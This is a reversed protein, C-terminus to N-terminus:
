NVMILKKAARVENLFANKCHDKQIKDLVRVLLMWRKDGRSMWARASITQAPNGRALANWFQDIALLINRTIDGGPLVLLVPVILVTPLLCLIVGSWVVLNDIQRM